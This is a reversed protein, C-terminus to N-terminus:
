CTVSVLDELKSWVIPDERNSTKFAKWSIKYSGYLGLDDCDFSVSATGRGPEATFKKNKADGGKSLTFVVIVNENLSNIYDFSPKNSTGSKVSHFNSVIFKKGSAEEGVVPIKQEVNKVPNSCDVTADLTGIKQPILTFVNNTTTIVERWKLISDGLIATFLGNSCGNVTCQCTRGVYCEKDCELFSQKVELVYPGYTDITSDRFCLAMVSVKGIEKTDFDITTPPILATILSM